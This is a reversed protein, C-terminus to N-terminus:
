KYRVGYGSVMKQGDVELIALGDKNQGVYTAEVAKRDPGSGVFVVVTEGINPMDRDLGLRDSVKKQLKEKLRKLRGMVVGLLSVM